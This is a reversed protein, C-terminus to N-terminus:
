VDLNRFLKDWLGKQAPTFLNCCLSSRLLPSSSMGISHRSTPILAVKTHKLAMRPFHVPRVQTMEQLHLITWLLSGRALHMSASDTPLLLM